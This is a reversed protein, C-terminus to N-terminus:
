LKPWDIDKGEGGRGRGWRRTLFKAMLVCALGAVVMGACFFLFIVWFDLAPVAWLM